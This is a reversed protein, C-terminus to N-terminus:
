EKANRHSDLFRELTRTNLEIDSGMECFYIQMRFCLRVALLLRRFFGPLLKLGSVLGRHLLYELGQYLGIGIVLKTLLAKFGRLRGARRIKSHAGLYRRGILIKRLKVPETEIRDQFWSFDVVTKPPFEMREITRVYEPSISEGIEDPNIGIRMPFPHMRFGRDLVPSDESLIKVERNRLLKFAHTSKGGGSPLLLLYGEGRYEFGLGHVRHMGISDLHLGAQSLLFLYAIEYAMSRSETYVDMSRKQRDYVTFAKGFYDAYLFHGQAYYFNRPTLGISRLVPLGTKDFESMHIDLEVRKENGCPRDAKFFLFDRELDEAVTSDESRIGVELGFINLNLASRHM